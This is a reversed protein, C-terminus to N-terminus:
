PSNVTLRRLISAEGDSYIEQWKGTAKLYRVLASDLPFLVWDIDYDKLLKEADKDLSIIKRYDEFIEEGYMDARGDIFVKQAPDLAYILYGGWSYYNFMKGKPRIGQNLHVIANIPHHSELVPFFTELVKHSKPYSPSTLVCLIVATALIALPGSICSTSLPNSEKTTPRLPICQISSQLMRAFYPCIFFSAIGIHRRHILSANVFFLVFFRDTWTTPASKLSMLLLIFLLYSRFLWQEQFNPPLWEVIGKAFVDSAVHFPFLYLNFGFPNIGAALVSLFLCVSPQRIAKITAKLDFRQGAFIDDLVRGGIFLGQLAIGLIFGGHLNAWLTTLPPIIWLWRGQKHLAYLVIVGCLWSFVHPRALMHTMSFTLAVSVALIAIWDNTASSVIRFLLWFSLSAVLCFFVGIGILGAHQHIGAMIIESLWEHATWSKGLATHSFIDQTLIARTKLMHQGAAIHWFTDGDIFLKTSGKIILLAFTIFGYLGAIDPLVALNGSDERNGIM